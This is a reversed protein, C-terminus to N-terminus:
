ILNIKKSMTVVNCGDERHYTMKDMIQKILFIGYGSDPHDSILPPSVNAMDFRPNRDKVMVVLENEGVEFEIIVETKDTMGGKHKVANTFAESLALEFAHSCDHAEKSDIPPDISSVMRAGFKSVLHLYKMKAPLTITVYETM